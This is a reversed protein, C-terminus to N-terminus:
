TVDSRLKSWGRDDVEADVLARRFRDLMAAFTAREDDTWGALAADYDHRAVERVRELLRDGETSLSILSSRRDDPDPSREILDSAELAQIQRSVTSQDLGMRAALNSLAIPGHRSVSRLLSSGAETVPLGAARAMRERQPPSRSSAVVLEVFQHI